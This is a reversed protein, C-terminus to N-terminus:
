VKLGYKKCTDLLAMALKPAADYEISGDLKEAGKGLRKAIAIMRDIVYQADTAAEGKKREVDAGGMDAIEKLRAVFAGWGQAGGFSQTIQRKTQAKMPLGNRGIVGSLDLETDGKTNADAIKDAIDKGFTAVWFMRRTFDYAAQAENSRKEGAKQSGLAALPVDHPKIVADYFTKFATVEKGKAARLADAAAYEAAGASFRVITNKANTMIYKGKPKTIDALVM